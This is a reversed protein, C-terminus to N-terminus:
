RGFKLDNSIKEFILLDKYGLKLVDLERKSIIKDRFKYFGPKDTEAVVLIGKKLESGNLLNRIENKLKQKM